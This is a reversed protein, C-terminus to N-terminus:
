SKRQLRFQRAEEMLEWERQEYRRERAADEATRHLVILCGRFAHEITAHIHPRFRCYAGLRRSMSGVCGGAVYAVTYQWRQMQAIINEIAELESFKM